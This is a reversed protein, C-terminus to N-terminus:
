WEYEGYAQVSWKVVSKPDPKGVNQRSSYGANYADLAAKNTEVWEKVKSPKTGTLQRLLSGTISFQEATVLGANYDQIAEVSRRLKEAYADHRRDGNLEANPVSRWDFGTPEDVAPEVKSTAKEAPKENAQKLRKLKLELAQRKECERALQKELDKAKLARAIIYELRDAHSGEGWTGADAITALLQKDLSLSSRKESLPKAALPEDAGERMGKQTIEKGDSDVCYYDNYNASAAKAEHILQLEVFRQADVGVKGYLHYAVRAGAARLNHASLIDETFPAPIIAGYERVVERNISKNTRSDAESASLGQLAILAPDRRIRSFADVFDVAKVLTYIVQTKPRDRQKVRTTFEIKYQSVAKVEAFLTLDTPRCQCAFLLGAAVTRWDAEKILKETKTIADDMSFPQANDQDADTKKKNEDISIASEEASATLFPMAMHIDIVGAKTKQPVSLGKPIPHVSFCAQIAKRYKTVRNPISRPAYNGGESDRLWALQEQCLAEVRERTTAGVLQALFYPIKGELKANRQGEKAFQEFDSVTVPKVVTAPM